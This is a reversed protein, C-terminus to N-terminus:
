VALEETDLAAISEIEVVMGVAELRRQQLDVAIQLLDGPRLRQGGDSGSELVDFGAIALESDDSRRSGGVLLIEIELLEGALGEPGVVDVVVAGAIDDAQKVGHTGLGRRERSRDIEVVLFGDQDDAGLER